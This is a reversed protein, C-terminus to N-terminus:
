KDISAEIESIFPALGLERAHTVQATKTVAMQIENTTCHQVYNNLLRKKVANIKGEVAKDIWSQITLVDTNLVVEDSDSITITYNAM